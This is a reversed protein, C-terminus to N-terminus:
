RESAKQRAELYAPNQEDVYYYDVYGIMMEDWTQDGWTVQRNADPNAPNASSNDYHATCRVITGAPLRVPEKFRYIHQWNFDYHPVSLLPRTEGTPLVAEYRFDHGRVHMHPFLSLLVAEKLVPVASVVEHRAAQAPIKLRENSIGHNKVDYQPPSECFKLGIESQDVEQKGNSTYHLQWVLEAGKPIKRGLGQPFVMPDTGPATAALWVPRKQGPMRYFVIIHHVVARNGPRPEAAQVWVDETFNTPTVFYQYEVKGEAPVTFAQPMKLVLDPQGIRWGAVTQTSSAEPSTASENATKQPEDGLPGGARAWQDLTAIEDATLRRENEFHSFRPDAHWPPMRQLRTVESVMSAWNAAESASTLAFPAATGEHHCEVCHRELIARVEGHYTPATGAPTQRASILCGAVTTSTQTVPEGAVVQRIANALDTQEAEPKRYDYGIRDDIRGRYRLTRRRDLVITEGMREVNLMTKLLQEGDVLVPFPLQFDQRHKAIDELSDGPNSNVGVFQVGRPEWEDTLRRLTPAYANVIPCRTGLWVLVIVDRDQWDGLGTLEGASNPLVIPPVRYGPLLNASSASPTANAVATSAGASDAALSASAMTGSLVVLLMLWAPLACLTRTAPQNPHSRQHEPQGLRVPIWCDPISRPM